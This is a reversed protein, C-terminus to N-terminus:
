NWWNKQKLEIKNIKQNLENMETKHQNEMKEKLANMETKHQNEMKEILLQQHLDQKENNLEIIKNTNHQHYIGFTMAGLAGQSIKKFTDNSLLNNNM